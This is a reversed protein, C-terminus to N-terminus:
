DDCFAPEIQTLTSADADLRYRVGLPLTLKPTLHGARVNTLVPKGPPLIDALIQGFPLALDPYENECSTFGGLVFGACADLAGSLRLQTLMRDVRYLYENVDEFFLLKGKLDPFYPTGVLAALLSLNGGVLEGECVGPAFSRMPQDPPNQLPCGLAADSLAARLSALTFPDFTPLIGDGTPMPSHFTVLRAKAFLALHLGTIDSFGTFVKPSAAIADYDLLDLIRPAGYGGRLCVVAQVSDDAFALNVDRARLADDGSLYGYRARCSEFVKVRYGLSEAAAVALELTQLRPLAGSPGVFGLTDGPRLRHPKRNM